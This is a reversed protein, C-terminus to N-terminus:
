RADGDFFGAGDGEEEDDRAQKKKKDHGSPRRPQVFAGGEILGDM